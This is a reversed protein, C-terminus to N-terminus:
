PPAINSLTETDNCSGGHAEIRNGTSTPHSRWLVSPTTGRKAVLIVGITGDDDGSHFGPQYIVIRFLAGGIPRRTLM